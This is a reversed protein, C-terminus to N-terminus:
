KTKTARPIKSTKPGKRANKACATKAKKRRKKNKLNM